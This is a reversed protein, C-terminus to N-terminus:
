VLCGRCSNHMEGKTGLSVARAPGWAATAVTMVPGLALPLTSINHQSSGKEKNRVSKTENCCTKERQLGDIHLLDAEDDEQSVNAPQSNTNELSCEKGLGTERTGIEDVTENRCLCRRNPKDIADECADVSAFRYQKRKFFPRNKDECIETLM